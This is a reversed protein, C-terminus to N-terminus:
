APESDPSVGDLVSGQTEPAFALGVFMLVYILAAYGISKTIGYSVVMSGLFSQFPASFIRSLNYAVGSGTARFAKPFLEPFYLGFGATLGLAFFSTLPAFVLLSYISKALMGTAFLSIGALTAFIAFMPRRGFRDTLPPFVLVGALTGCHLIFISLNKWGVEEAKPVVGAVLDPLWFPLLGGGSIGVVGILSAVILNKWPMRSATKALKEVKIPQDPELKYRAALCLVAPAIGALYVWRWNASGFQINVLVGIMSGIAAATQLFAAARARFDNPVTEAILAAGAAWEGGIGLGTLFRAGMVQEPTRCLSTLGTFLCYLFVTLLLTRSRGWRDALIGFVLGGLSWGILMSMHINAAVQAGVLKYQEEGMMETLMSKKTLAFLSAEMVDFVWGLWAVILVIRQHKTLSKM